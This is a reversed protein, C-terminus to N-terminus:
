GNGKRAREQEVAVLEFVDKGGDIGAIYAADRAAEILDLTCPDFRLL